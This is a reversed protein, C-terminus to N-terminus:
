DRFYEGTVEVNCEIQRIQVSLSLLCEESTGYKPINEMLKIWKSMFPRIGNGVMFQAIGVGLGKARSRAEDSLPGPILM